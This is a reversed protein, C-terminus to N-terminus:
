FRRTVGLVVANERFEDDTESAFRQQFRYGIFGLLRDSFDRTLTVAAFVTRFTGTEVDDSRASGGDDANTYDFGLSVSLGTTPDLKRGWTSSVGVSDQDTLGDEEESDSDGVDKQRAAYLGVTFDNSGRRHEATVTAVQTRTLQDSIDIGSLATSFAFGTQQNIFRGTVPDYGIASLNRLLNMQGVGISDNYTAGVATQPSFEYRLRVDAQPHELQWGGFANVTLTSSPEYRIGAGGSPGQLENGGADLLDYGVSALVALGPKVAYSPTLATGAATVDSAGFRATRSGYTSHRAQVRPLIDQPTQLNIVAGNTISDALQESDSDQRNGESGINRALTAGFIYRAEVDAVGKLSTLWYPSLSYAQVTTLNTDNNEATSSATTPSLAEESISGLADVFVRDRVLEATSTGLINFLASPGSHSLAQYQGTVAASLAGTIRGGTGAFQLSPTLATILAPDRQGDPDLSVNDTFIQTLTVASATRWDGAFFGRPVIIIDDPQVPLDASTDGRDILDDLQLPIHRPSPEAPRVLVAANGDAHPSLGGVETLVDLVTMGATFPVSRPTSVEGIVSIERSGSVADLVEVSVDPEVVFAGLRGELDSRLQAPTRGAARVDEILPLSVYGDPRVRVIESLEPYNRVTVALVDTPGIRYEPASEAPLAAGTGSAASIDPLTRPEGAAASCSALAVFLALGFRPQGIRARAAAFCIPLYRGADILVSGVGKKFREM